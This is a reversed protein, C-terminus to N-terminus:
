IFRYTDIALEPLMVVLSPFFVLIIEQAAEQAVGAERSSEEMTFYPYRSPGKIITLHVLILRLTIKECMIFSVSLLESYFYVKNYVPIHLLVLGKTHKKACSLYQVSFAQFCIRLTYKLVRFNCHCIIPYIHLQDSRLHM